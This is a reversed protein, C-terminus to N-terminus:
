FDKGFCVKELTKVYVDSLSRKKVSSTGTPVYLSCGDYCEIYAKLGIVYPVTNSAIIYNTLLKAAKKKRNYIFDNLSRNSGGLVFYCYENDTNYDDILCEGILNGGKVIEKYIKYSRRKHQHDFSVNNYANEMFWIFAPIFDSEYIFKTLAHYLNNNKNGVLKEKDITKKVKEENTTPRTEEKKEKNAKVSSAFLKAVSKSLEDVEDKSSNITDVVEQTAKTYEPEKKNDNDDDLYEVKIITKNSKYPNNSGGMVKDYIDAIPADHNKFNNFMNNRRKLSNSEDDEVITYQFSSIGTESEFDSPPNKIKVNTLRPCGVFMGKYHKCSKMDIVGKITTLSICNAFMYSMNTVNATNFSSADLSTLSSCAEFMYEMDDVKSTDFSSLDLSTLRYCSAFMNGMDTVNSTNFKSVDLSTLSGCGSFMSGTNTVKSTNFKSVDLSILRFCGSFMGCMDTVNSTDFNSLDLTTLKSCDIVMHRMDTVKSTDFNSLDLTTLNECGDFMTRMSTVNGDCTITAQNFASEDTNIVHDKDTWWISNFWPSNGKVTFVQPELTITEKKLSSPEDDVITYQSKLLGCKDAFNPPPNKIKVGKLKDCWNFMDYCQKCSKMDIVGKITTLSICDSFMYSMDEVNSTDFNTLDLTTLNICGYFMSSMDTVKSTNFSSLNVSALEGCKFFMFRMNTVNSTDLNSLDLTTLGTCYYFMNRMNTVNSTNFKSLDLSTLRYCSDFMGCMSTVDGDCTVTAQDSVSEDTNIVHEKDTWWFKSYWPFNGKSVFVQPKMINKRKLSNSEDDVITYQSSSLGAWSENFDTPPNKIKVNKLKPCNTFMDRYWKCSKMDITGKITTLNSCNYFMGTMDSVNSTDFNSIDLTTLGTCDYFMHEMSLVNFTDFSSLDLSTFGPCNYFMYSMNTVKSTNFGSLDLATLNFCSNFMSSMNTVKSTNFYSFLDLSTLGSCHYFMHEMNTIKDDITVIAQSSSFEIVDIVHTEGVWIKSYWPDSGNAIFAMKQKPYKSGEKCSDTEDEVITYQSKSLGSKSEFDTPPNKIKVNKLKTCWKFMDYCNKCSKMDIIGKIAVLSDCNYFMHNMNTVKSTDFNSIDLFTLSSCNGFMWSMDDVKSTNFSSLDLSALKYCSTFMDGMDTVKSTDFSSLDLSTLSSCSSFMHRMTTVNSTDLKSLDISVISSCRNFMWDMVTVNSTNVSVDLSVLNSCSEFMSRMNTVSSTNFDSLDLSTLNYCSSFMGCMNTVNGDCTVTAQASKSEYTGIVSSVHPADEWYNSYWPTSGKAVFVQPKPM